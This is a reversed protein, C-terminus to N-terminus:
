YVKKANRILRGWHKNYAHVKETPQSLTDVVTRGQAKYEFIGGYLNRVDTYGLNELREGIKESRVGISCYVLIPTDKEPILNAIHSPNFDKYGIWRAGPIHSVDYEEKSRADAIFLEDNGDLDEVHAYPISGSNYRALAEDITQARCSTLTALIVLLFTIRM